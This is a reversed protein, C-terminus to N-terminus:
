GTWAKKLEAIDIKSMKMLAAWVRKSKEPDKDSMLEQLAIPVIQWSLGFRDKLWGCQSPSGGGEILKTWFQDVEDQDKCSVFLSVAETLPFKPGGYGEGVQRAGNGLRGEHAADV